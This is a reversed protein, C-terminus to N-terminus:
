MLARWCLRLPQRERVLVGAGGAGGWRTGTAGRGGSKSSGVNEIIVGQVKKWDTALRKVVLYANVPNHLYAEQNEVLERNVRQYQAM